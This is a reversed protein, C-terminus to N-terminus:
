KVVTTKFNYGGIPAYQLAQVDKKLLTALAPQYLPIVAQEKNLLDSARLLDSIRKAGSNTKAQDLLKDYEPNKWKGFNYHSDATFLDLVSTADQYDAGWGTSVLDFDGQQMRTIRNKKNINTTKITVHPLNSELQSQLFENTKKSLDEDDGLLELTLEKQGLEKLGKALYAQAKKKDFSTGVKTAALKSFDQGKYSMLGKPIFSETTISGNALVREVLQKRDIAYSLARRINLNKLAPREKNIDLYHIRAQKRAVFDPNKKLAQAQDQSLDTKDLQGSQFMNYSTSTSKTVLFNIKDLKVHGKDWYKANKTLSWKQEPGTWAKVTFPGNFIAKKASTGYEKGFKTVAKENLPAFIPATTLSEFYPIKNELTVQLTHKDLAVVGLQDPAVQGTAIAKANKIGDFLQVNAAGTQPTLARRWSFVFDAATVPDNNSWRANKQLSFTYTLGDSSIKEKTVLAPSLKGNNELRYLGEYSNRLIESSTTDVSLAPDLTQLEAPESWNLTKTALVPSSQWLWFTTLSFFIATIFKTVKHM